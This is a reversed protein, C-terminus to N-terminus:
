GMMVAQAPSWPCAAGIGMGTTIIGTQNAGNGTIDGVNQGTTEQDLIWLGVPSIQYWAALSGPLAEVQADSLPGNFWLGTMAIDGGFADGGTAWDGHFLSTAPATIDNLTAGANTHTWTNTAFVYKHFRPTGNTTKTVGILCWGDAVVLSSASQTNNGCRLQISNDALIAFQVRAAGSTATGLYLVVHLVANTTRRVISMISIPSTVASAGIACTIRSTGSSTFSRSM